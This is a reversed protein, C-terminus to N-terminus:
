SAQNQLANAAVIRAMTRTLGPLVAAAHADYADPAMRHGCAQCRV